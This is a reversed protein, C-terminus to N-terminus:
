VAHYVKKALEITATVALGVGIVLLLQCASLPVTELIRNLFPVYLATLLLMFGYAVGWLMFKNKFFNNTHWLPKDMNKYSFIYIMSVCALSAFVMTRGLALNGPTIVYLWFLGLSLLGASLSVIVILSRTLTNLIDQKQIDQPRETMFEREAPEFALALDPPGDCILKIWLIQVITLPAPLNLLVAGFILIIEAFSNSLVYGVTKKINSFILRGQACADVITKFNSDLLILDAAEKAVDCASAVAIGIDAKKLAPADNVGDGTMAVIEGKEQLIRVIKQKHLPTTRAFLILHDIRKKLDEDSITELEQGDMINTQDITLGLNKALREVTKRYDGTIIKVRMGAKQAMALAEPAEKRLPDAVGLLGAWSFDKKETLNGHEKFIIGFVRLGDDAWANMTTTIHDHEQPTVRCFTLAIEPAGVLCCMRKNEHESITLSYKKDDDFPEEHIKKTNELVTFQDFEQEHAVYEWIAVELSNKQTNNITLAHLAQPKDSFDTKVVRMIGETLTGTKDICIVSTVGLTEISSLRKVLGNKKLIRRSGLSLIMTIAISLGHPIAAM